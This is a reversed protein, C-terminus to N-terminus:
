TSYAAGILLIVADEVDYPLTRTGADGPLVYVGDYTAVVKPGCWWIECDGSLRMLKGLAADHVYDTDAVLTKDGEVVSPISAAPTRENM